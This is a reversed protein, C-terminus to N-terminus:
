KPTAPAEVQAPAHAAIAQNRGGEKARYLAQDADLILQEITGGDRPYLTAVGISITVVGYPSKSHPLALRRVENCIDQVMILVRATDTHPMLLAFEEGGYRAVVDSTRRGHAAILQAVARLAQDGAQHGYHDNYAKFHDVDMMALSVSQGTRRARRWENALAADFGRRNTVGTLGDTTSLEELKANSEQLERTREAVLAQLMTQQRTLRRVRIRYAGALIGFTAIAAFARFWWTQWFPPMISIKLSTAQESWVGQDNAAKVQFTYEGPNLNTYTATRRAADTEVWDRDFGALRYAYTNRAPNTYHLAAFELSFVGEQVSLTLQTPATVPGSLNIDAARKGDTLSRNFVSIDTIAVQPPVSSTRVKDPDVATLGKVGGFYLVGDPSAFAAGITFGETLGDSASFRAVQGSDPDLRILGAATSMWLKGSKDARMALVKVQGVSGKQAFSRFSIAGDAGTIIENVGKATGVWLRGRPDLYVTSVNDDALSRADGAVHRYNTIRGTTLNLVDLGGGNWESGMWVRGQRDEVLTTTGAVSRTNTAKPDSAYSTYKGSAPDYHIVNAGTGLWLKGDSGPAISNIFNSAVSNFRVVSIPGDRHDLRNLGASTGIWLPGGPQQYSSYIIGNSLAGPKDPAPRWTKEVTGTAPDFLVFGTNGGLWLKGDPSGSINQLANSGLGEGGEDFPIMRRFGQSSLNTLCIGDTFTAIWLMGGRDQMIARVNDSPLSYPDAARHM